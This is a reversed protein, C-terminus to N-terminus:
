TTTRSLRRAYIGRIADVIVPVDQLKLPRPDLQLIGTNAQHGRVMIRPSGAELDHLLATADFGLEDALPSVAVRQIARGAEDPVLALRTHPLGTLGRLLATVIEDQGARTAVDDCDLFLELATLLGLIAEKSVKMSRAIGRDQARCCAILSARGVVFGSTPGGFSKGGSYVALDAGASAYRRMDDDAAADVLVPVGARHGIAVVEELSVMGKQVAHHSQVYMVAATREDIFSRITEPTCLNVAGVTVPRGGGIRVMQEVSAGFDILHGGQILISRPEWDADPLRRVRRLDSGAVCAAVMTAVGAAAGSTIWAAEAGAWKAIVDGAREKLTELDVYVTGAVAMAEAVRPSLVSGGLSTMKGCANIVGHIGLREYTYV